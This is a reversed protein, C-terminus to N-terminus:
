KVYLTDNDLLQNLLVSDAAKEVLSENEKTWRLSSSNSFLNRSIRESTDNITILVYKLAHWVLWENVDEDQELAMKEVQNQLSIFTNSLEELDSESYEFRQSEKQLKQLERKITTLLKKSAQRQRDAEELLVRQRERDQQQLQKEQLELQYAENELRMRELEQVRGQQRLKEMKREHELNLRLMEVESDIYGGRDKQSLVPLQSESEDNTENNRNFRTQSLGSVSSQSLAEYNYEDDHEEEAEQEEVNYAESPDNYPLPPHPSYQSTEDTTEFYETENEEEIEKLIRYVTARSMETRAVIDSVDWGDESLNLVEDKEEKTYM